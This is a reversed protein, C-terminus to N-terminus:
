DRGKEEGGGEEEGGEVVGCCGCAGRCCVVCPSLSVCLSLCLILSLLCFGLIVFSECTLCKGHHETSLAKSRGLHNM